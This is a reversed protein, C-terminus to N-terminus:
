FARLGNNTALHAFPSRRPSLSPLQCKLGAPGPAHKKGRGRASTAEQSRSTRLALSHFGRVFSTRVKEADKEQGCRLLCFAASQKLRAWALQCSFENAGPRFMSSLQAPSLQVPSSQAPSPEVKSRARLGFRVPGSRVSRVCGSQTAGRRRSTTLAICGSNCPGM